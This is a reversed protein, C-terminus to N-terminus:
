RPPPKGPPGRALELGIGSRHDAGLGLQDQHVGNDGVFLPVVDVIQFGLVEFDPLVVLLLLDLAKENSFPSPM